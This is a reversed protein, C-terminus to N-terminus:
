PLEGELPNMAYTADVGITLERYGTAADFERRFRIGPFVGLVVEATTLVLCGEQVHGGTVLGEGDAVALHLHAGDPSLTGTLSVIELPQALGTTRCGGALRLAARSLSGACTLVCAATIGSDRVLRELSVRLDDGPLLRLPIANLTTM